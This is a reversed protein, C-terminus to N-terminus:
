LRDADVRRAHCYERRPASRVLGAARPAPHRPEGPRSQSDGDDRRFCPDARTAQPSVGGMLHGVVIYPSWTDPGENADTWAPPLGGLLARLAAPTRELVAVGEALDFDM